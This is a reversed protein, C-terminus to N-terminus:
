KLATRNKIRPEYNHGTATRGLPGVPFNRKQHTPIDRNQIEQFLYLTKEVHFSTRAYTGFGM